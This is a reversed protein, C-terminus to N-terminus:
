PTDSRAYRPFRLGTSELFRCTEWKDMAVRLVEPPSCVVIAGTERLLTDANESLLQLEKESGPLVLQVKQEACIRRIEPLYAEGDSCHPVVFEADVWRLGVSFKDRDIGVIRSPLAMQRAAKVLAQGVTDGVGTVLITTTEREIM